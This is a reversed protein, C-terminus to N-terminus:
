MMSAIILSAIVGAITSLLAGPLTYRTKTIKVIMFYVSMTYFISETCSMIISAAYGAYSDAGSEKFIDLVLGTAASTSLPRILIVPWLISPIQLFALAKGLLESIWDLFGSARLIGVGTMLGVLTPFISATVRMGEKAGEIFDDFVPKKMLLGFGIIYFIFVPIIFDSLYLLFRM